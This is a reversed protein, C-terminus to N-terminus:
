CEIHDHEGCFEGRKIGATVGTNVRQSKAGNYSLLGGNGDYSSARVTQSGDLVVYRKVCKKLEPRRSRPRQGSFVLISM